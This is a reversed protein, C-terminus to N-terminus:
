ASRETGSVARGDLLAIQRQALAAHQADHTVLCITTARQQHIERLLEMISEGNASDLNGTPEDALVLEPETVIARAV